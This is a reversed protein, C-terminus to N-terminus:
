NPTNLCDSSASAASGMSVPDPFALSGRTLGSLPHTRYEVLAVSPPMLAGGCIIRTGM